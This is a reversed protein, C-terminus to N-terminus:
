GCCYIKGTFKITFTKERSVSPAISRFLQVSGTVNFQLPSHYLWYYWVFPGESYVQSYSEIGAKTFAWTTDNMRYNWFVTLTITDGPDMTVIGNDDIHSSKIATNAVPIIQKFQPLSPITVEVSGKIDAAEQITEDFTNVVLLQFSTLQQFTASARDPNNSDSSVYRISDDGSHRVDVVLFGTPIEYEPLSENCSFAFLSVSFLISRLLLIRQTKIKM